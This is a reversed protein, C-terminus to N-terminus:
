ESKLGLLVTLTFMSQDTHVKASLEAIMKTQDSNRQEYM